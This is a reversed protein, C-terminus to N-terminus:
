NPVPWDDPGMNWNAKPDACGATVLELALVADVGVGANNLKPLVGDDAPEVDVDFKTKPADALVPELVAPVFGSKAKPVVATLLLPAACGAKMNPEDAALGCTNPEM